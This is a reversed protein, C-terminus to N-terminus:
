ILWVGYGSKSSSEKETVFIGNDFVCIHSTFMFQFSQFSNTNSTWASPGKTAGFAIVSGDICSQIRSRSPIVVSLPFVSLPFVLSLSPHLINDELDYFRRKEFHHTYPIIIYQVLQELALEISRAEAM